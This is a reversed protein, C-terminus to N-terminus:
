FFINLGGQHSDSVIPHIAKMYAYDVSIKPGVWGAGISWGDGRQQAEYAIAGNRFTGMRLFFDTFFPFELGAQLGWKPGDYSPVWLPDIYALIIGLANFKTGLTFERYYGKSKGSEFLNDVILAAQLWSAAIATFSFTADNIQSGSHNNPFIFKGGLGVGFRTLFDKSAGIHLFNADPRATYGVGAQFISESTGDIVSANLLHGYFNTPGQPTDVTGNGFSEYNFSLSHTKIFSTYSPNLYLADNLFPGAHGAGGLAQTRASQFDSASSTGSCLLVFYFM